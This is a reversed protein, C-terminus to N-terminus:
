TRDGTYWRLMSPRSLIHAISFRDPHKNSLEKFENKFIITNESKNGYVLHAYSHPEAALVSCIMSYLPTIGSGAGFFYHTRRLSGDPDLCFNGFPPMVEITEGASINNNIHNSILGGKVRKVTIRLPEGTFPSSSISYSRRVEENNLLFRLTIHQGPQWSFTEGLDEPIDFTVTKADGGIECDTKAVQLSHFNRSM